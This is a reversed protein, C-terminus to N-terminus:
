FFIINLLVTLIILLIALPVVKQYWKEGTYKPKETLSYVLGKLESDPKPKTVLSVIITTFFNVVWSVMAV